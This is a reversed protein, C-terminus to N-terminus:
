TALEESGQYPYSLLSNQFLTLSTRESQEVKKFKNYTKVIEM